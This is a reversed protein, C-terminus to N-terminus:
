RERRGGRDTPPSDSARRANRAPHCSSRSQCSPLLAWAGVPARIAPCQDAFFNVFEANAGIQLRNLLHQHVAGAGVALQTDEVAGIAVELGHHIMQQRLCYYSQIQLTGNM